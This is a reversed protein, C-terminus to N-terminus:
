ESIQRRHGGVDQEPLDRVGGRHREPFQGFAARSGGCRVVPSRPLAIPVWGFRGARSNMQWAPSDMTEVVVAQVQEWIDPVSRFAVM